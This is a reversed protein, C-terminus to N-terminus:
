AAPLGAQSAMIREIDALIIAAFDPVDHVSYRDDGVGDQPDMGGHYIADLKARLGAMTRVPYTIILRQAADFPEWAEKDAAELPAVKETYFADRREKADLWVARAQACRPDAEALGRVREMLAFAREAQEGPSQDASIDYEAAIAQVRSNDKLIERRM